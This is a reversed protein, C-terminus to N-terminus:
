VQRKGKLYDIKEQQMREILQWERVPDPRDCFTARYVFDEYEELSLNAEQASAETPYQTLTWNFKGEATRRLMTEAFPNRARAMRQLRKPDIGTMARTNQTARLNIFADAHEIFGMQLPNFWDLQEDSATRLFDRMLTEDSSFLIPHAGAKVVEHHVARVLPLAAVDASIGVMQHAQVEVSYQVLVQALRQLREM